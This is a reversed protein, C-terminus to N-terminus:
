PSEYVFIKVRGPLDSVELPAWTPIPWTYSVVLTKPALEKAFKNVLNPMIGPMLFVFIIEARSVDASWLSQYKVQFNTRALLRRGFSILLPLLSIEYGTALFGHKTATSLLRGDGSGLEVLRASSQRYKKILGIVREVDAQRMPVWPAASLSGLSFTIGVLLLIAIFIPM